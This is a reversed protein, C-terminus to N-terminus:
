TPQIVEEFTFGKHTKFKGNICRYVSSSEFGLEILKVKGLRGEFRLIGNKDFCKIYKTAKNMAGSIKERNEKDKFRNIQNNSIKIRSELSHKMGSSGHGGECINYGISKDISKYLRILNTESLNINDKTCVDLIERKFNHKGYKKFALKLLTGSGLYTKWRGFCDFKKQGIYIMGNVLNTTKYVFGYFTQSNELFLTSM